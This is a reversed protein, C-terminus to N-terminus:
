GKFHPNRVTRALTLPSQNRVEQPIVSIPSVARRRYAGKVAREAITNLHKAQIIRQRGTVLDVTKAPGAAKFYNDAQQQKPGPLPPAMSEGERINDKLNTMGYSEMTMEATYDVAKVIPNAGIQAPARQEELMARLRQNEIQMQRLQRIQACSPNPCSPNQKPIAKLWRGWWKHGCEACHYRVRYKRPEFPAPGQTEYSVFESTM